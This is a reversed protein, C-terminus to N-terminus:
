RTSEGRLPIARQRPTLGGTRTTLEEQGKPTKAFVVGM